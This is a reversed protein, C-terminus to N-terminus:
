GNRNMEVDAFVLADVMEAMRIVATAVDEAGQASEMIGDVGLVDPHNILVQFSERLTLKPM